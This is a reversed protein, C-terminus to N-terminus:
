RGSLILELESDKIVSICGTDEIKFDRISYPYVYWGYGNEIRGNCDHGRGAFCGDLVVAYYVDVPDIGHIVDFVTGSARLGSMEFSVWDGISLITGMVNEMKIGPTPM